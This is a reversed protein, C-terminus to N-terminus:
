RTRSRTSASARRRPRRSSRASSTTPPGSPSAAGSWPTPWPRRPRTARARRRAGDARRRGHADRGARGDGPALDRLRRGRRVAARRGGPPRAPLGAAPGQAPDPQRDAGRHRPCRPWPGARGPRPEEQQADDLQRDLVRRRGARVRVAPEVVVHDGRGAPQPPGHRARDGGDDRGRLRPGLRRRALERQRWRLRAGRGDGRSRAPLRRRGARGVGLPSVNLAPARTPWGAATASPWRSTPWCTTPSSSRSPRSSTPRAPCSPRGTASPSASSRGSSTSRARRRADDISRRTWLRLDTAVQDNRSRGTHLRGALPGVKEALAAEVNM